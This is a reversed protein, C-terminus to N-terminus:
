GLAVLHATLKLGHLLACLLELANTLLSLHRFLFRVVADKQVFLRLFLRLCLALGSLSYSQSPHRVEAWGPFSHTKVADRRALAFPSRPHESRFREALF